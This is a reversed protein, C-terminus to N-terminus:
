FEGFTIRMPEEYVDIEGSEVDYNYQDKPIGKYFYDESVELFARFTGYYDAEAVYTFAEDLITEIREDTLYRIALGCTSVYIERNDMDILYLVGDEEPYLADYFDDAYERSSKGEADDTTVIAFKMKWVDTLVEAYSGLEEEEAATLLDAQDFVYTSQASTNIGMFLGSCLCLCMFFLKIKKM